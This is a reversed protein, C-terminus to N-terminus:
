KLMELETLMKRRSSASVASDIRDIVETDIGTVNSISQVSSGKDAMRLVLLLLGRGLQEQLDAISPKTASALYAQRAASQSIRVSCWGQHRANLGCPCTLNGMEAARIEATRKSVGALSASRRISVGLTLAEQLLAEKAPPIRNGRSESAVTSRGCGKCIVRQRSRGRGHKITAGGCFSCRDVAPVSRGLGALVMRRVAEGLSMGQATAQRVLHEHEEVSLTASVFRRLSNRHLDMATCYGALERKDIRRSFEQGAAQGAM